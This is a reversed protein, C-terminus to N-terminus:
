NTKAEGQGIPKQCKKCIRVKKKKLGQYGIRTPKKCQPCILAVKAVDLPKTIDIIGGPKNQDQAKLHKKYQNIGTILVQNSKPFVKTIKGTRGRDKGLTVQVTDNLKLKM